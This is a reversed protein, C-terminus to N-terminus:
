GPHSSEGFCSRRDNQLFTQLGEMCDKIDRFLRENATQATIYAVVQMPKRAM